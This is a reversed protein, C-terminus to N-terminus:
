PKFEVAVTLRYCSHFRGNSPNTYLMGLGVTVGNLTAAKIAGTGVKKSVINQAYICDRFVDATPANKTSITKAYARMDDYMKDYTGKGVKQSNNFVCLGVAPWGSWPHEYM